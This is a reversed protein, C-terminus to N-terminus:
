QELELEHKPGGHVIFQDIWVGCHLCCGYSGIRHECTWIDPPEAQKRKEDDFSVIKRLEALQQEVFEPTAPVIPEDKHERDYVLSPHQSEKAAVTHGRTTSFCSDCMKKYAAGGFADGCASCKRFASM